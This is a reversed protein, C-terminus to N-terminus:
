KLVQVDYGRSQADQIITDLDADPFEDIIGRVMAMKIGPLFAGLRRIQDMDAANELAFSTVVSQLAQDGALVNAGVRAVLPTVSQAWDEEDIGPDYKYLGEFFKREANAVKKPM